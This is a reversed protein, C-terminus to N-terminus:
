LRWLALCRVQAALFYGTSTKYTQVLLRAFAFDGPSTPDELVGAVQAQGKIATNCVFLRFAGNLTLMMGANPGTAPIGSFSFAGNNQFSYLFGPQSPQSNTFTYGYTSLFGSKDKALITNFENESVTGRYVGVVSAPIGSAGPGKVLQNFATQALAAPALLAALALVLAVRAM